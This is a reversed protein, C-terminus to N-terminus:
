QHITDASGHSYFRHRARRLSTSLKWVSVGTVVLGLLGFSCAVELIGNSLHHYCTLLLPAALGILTLLSAVAVTFEESGIFDPSNLLPHPRKANRTKGMQLKPMSPAICFDGGERFM